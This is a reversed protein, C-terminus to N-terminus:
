GHSPGPLRAFPDCFMVGLPAFHRVNRTLVTFGHESAAAAIMVDALGPAVGLARARDSMRGAIRATVVTFPLIQAAYLHLLTELWSGLKTAKAVAGERGAKTIGDEIEAITVSSLFLIASNQDMWGGLGPAYARGPAGASIVNTDVIYM